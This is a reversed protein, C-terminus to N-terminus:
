LGWRRIITKALEDPIERHRPVMETDKGRKYVDHEGGHRAFTFGGNELKRILDKRKM